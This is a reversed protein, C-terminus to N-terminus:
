LEKSLKLIKSFLFTILENDKQIKECVNARNGHKKFDDICGKVEKVLVFDCKPNDYKPNLKYNKICNEIEFNTLNYPDDIAKTELSILFITIISLFGIKKSM